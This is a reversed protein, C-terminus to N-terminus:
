EDGKSVFIPETFIRDLSLGENPTGVETRRFVCLYTTGKIDEQWKAYYGQAKNFCYTSGESDIVEIWGKM